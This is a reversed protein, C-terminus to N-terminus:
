LLVDLLPPLLLLTIIVTAIFSTILSAAAAVDKSVKAMPHYDPQALNVAAELATNFVETIWVMGIAMLVLVMSQVNVRLFAALLVVFVTMVILLRVTHQRRLLFVLGAAAYQFSEWQNKATKYSYEGPNIKMTSFLIPEHTSDRKSM